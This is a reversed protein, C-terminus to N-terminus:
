RDTAQRNVVEGQEVTYTNGKGDKLTGTFHFNVYGKEIYWTGNENEAIGTFGTNVVGDKVLAWRGPETEMVEGYKPNKDELLVDVRTAQQAAEEGSHIKNWNWGEDQHSRSLYFIAGIVLGAILLGLVIFLWLNKPKKSKKRGRSRNESADEPKHYTAYNM